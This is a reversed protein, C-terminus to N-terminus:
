TIGCAGRCIRTGQLWWRFLLERCSILRVSRNSRMKASLSSCITLDTELFLAVYGKSALCLWGYAPLLTGRHTIIITFDDCLHLSLRGGGREAQRRRQHGPHAATGRAGRDGQAQALVRQPRDRGRVEQVGTVFTFPVRPRKVRVDVLILAIYMSLLSSGSPYFLLWQVLAPRFFLFGDAVM